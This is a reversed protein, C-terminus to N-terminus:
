CHSSRLAELGHILAPPADQPRKVPSDVGKRPQHAPAPRQDSHNESPMDDQEM